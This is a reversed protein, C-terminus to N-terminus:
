ASSEYLTATSFNNYTTQSKRKWKRPQWVRGCIQCVEPPPKLGRKDRFCDWCSSKASSSSAQLGQRQLIEMAKVQPEARRIVRRRRRIAPTIAVKKVRGTSFTRFKEKSQEMKTWEEEHITQSTEPKKRDYSTNPNPSKRTLSFKHLGTQTHTIQSQILQDQM